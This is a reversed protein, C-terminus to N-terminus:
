EGSNAMMNVILENQLWYRKPRSFGWVMNKKRNKGNQILELNILLESSKKEM